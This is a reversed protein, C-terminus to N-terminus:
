LGGNNIGIVFFHFDTEYFSPFPRMGSARKNVVLIMLHLWRM